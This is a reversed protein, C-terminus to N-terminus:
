KEDGEKLNWNRVKRRENMLEARRRQTKMLREKAERQSETTRSSATQSTSATAAAVRAGGFGGGVTGSGSASMGRIADVGWSDGIQLDEKAKLLSRRAELLKTNQDEDQWMVGTSSSSNGPFHMQPSSVSSLGVGVEGRLKKNHTTLASLAGEIDAIKSEYRAATEAEVNRIKDALQRSGPKNNNHTTSNNSNSDNNNNLTAKQLDTRLKNSLDLLRNRDSVIARLESSTDHLKHELEKM